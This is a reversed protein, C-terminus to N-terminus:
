RRLFSADGESEVGSAQSIRADEVGHAAVIENYIDICGVERETFNGAAFKGDGGVIAHFVDVQSHNM